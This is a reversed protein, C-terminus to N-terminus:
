DNSAATLESLRDNTWDGNQLSARERAEPAAELDHWMGRVGEKSTMFCAGSPAQGTTPIQFNGSKTRAQPAEEKKIVQPGTRSHLM